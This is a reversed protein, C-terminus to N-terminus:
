LIVLALNKGCRITRYFCHKTIKELEKKMIDQDKGHMLDLEM